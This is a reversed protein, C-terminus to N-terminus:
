NQLYLLESSTEVVDNIVRYTNLINKIQANSLGQYQKGKNSPLNSEELQDQVMDYIQPYDKYYNSVALPQESEQTEWKM